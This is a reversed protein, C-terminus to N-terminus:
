VILYVEGVLRADARARRARLYVSNKALLQEPKVARAEQEIPQKAAFPFL